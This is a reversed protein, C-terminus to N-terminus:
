QKEILQVEFLKPWKKGTIYYNGTTSNRAIGNLVDTDPTKDLETLLGSFDIRGIVAGTSEDIKVIIDTQYVNAYLVGDVWELENLHVVPGRNDYVGIQRVIKLTATDLYYLCNTGDSLILDKGNFALGWGDTPYEFTKLLKFDSKSYVFGKHTQWTIQYLLQGNMALGEGFYDFNLQLSRLAKGTNIETQLLSSEGYMGTSEFLKGADYVLGQTYSTVSHPFTNVIKYSIEAPAASPLITFSVKSSIKGTRVAITHTGIHLDSPGIRLTATYPVSHEAAQDISYALSDGASNCTINLCITDNTHFYAPQRCFQLQLFTSKPDSGLSCSSVTNILLILMLATRQHIKM